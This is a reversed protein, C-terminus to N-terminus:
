PVLSWTMREMEERPPVGDKPHLKQWKLVKKRWRPRFSPQVPPPTYVLFLDQVANELLTLLMNEEPLRHRNDSDLKM